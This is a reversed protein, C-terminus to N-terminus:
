PQNYLGTELTAFCSGHAVESGLFFMQFPKSAKLRFALAM